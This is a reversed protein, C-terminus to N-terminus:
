RNSYFLAILSAVIGTVIVPEIFRSIGREPPPVAAGPIATTSLSRLASANVVDTRTGTGQGVWLIEDTKSSRLRGILTVRASREVRRGGFPGTHWARPYTLALEVIRYEFAHSATGEVRAVQATTSDTSYTSDTSGTSDTSSQRAAAVPLPVPHFGRSVLLQALTQEAMWNADADNMARIAITADPPLLTAQEVLQAAADHFASQVIDLNSPTTAPTAATTAPTTAPTAAAAVRALLLGALLLPARRTVDRRRM